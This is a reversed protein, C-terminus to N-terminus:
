ASLVWNIVYVQHWTSFTGDYISITGITSWYCDALRLSNTALITHHSSPEALIPHNTIKYYELLIWRGMM